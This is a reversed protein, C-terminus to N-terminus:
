KAQEEHPIGKLSTTFIPHQLAENSRRYLTDLNNHDLTVLLDPEIGIDNYPKGNPMILENTTLILLGGHQTSFVSQVLGKGFSKQGLLIAKDNQRLAACFVEAASATFRDQWILVPRSTKRGQASTKFVTKKNQANKLSYLLTNPGLFLEACQRMAELSGGVNGRLDLIIPTDQPVAELCLTLEHLTQAGFRYIHLRAFKSAGEDDYFIEVSPRSIPARKLAVKRVVGQPSEIELRIVSNTNGRIRDELLQLPIGEVPEEDVSVLIEGQLIGAEAAPTGAFPLCLLQGAKSQLLDMGIGSYHTSPTLFKQKEQPSIYSSYNDMGRIYEKISDDTDKFLVSFSTLSPYLGKQTVLAVIEEARPSLKPADAHANGAAVSELVLLLLIILLQRM